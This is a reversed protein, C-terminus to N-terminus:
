ANKNNTRIDGVAAATVGVRWHHMKIPPPPLPAVATATTLLPTTTAMLM